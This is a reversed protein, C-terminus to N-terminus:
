GRERLFDDVTIRFLIMFGYVRAWFFRISWYIDQLFTINLGGVKQVVSAPVISLPHNIHNRVVVKAFYHGKLAFRGYCVIEGVVYDLSQKKFEWHSLWRNHSVVITPLFMLHSGAVLMRLAVDADDASRGYAGSGLREDFFGVRTLARKRFAMNNGYGINDWHTTPASIKMQSHRNKLTCPCIEGVHNKPQHPLTKGFFGDIDQHKAFSAYVQQLWDDSVICDDDTFAVVNSKAKKIGLNRSSSIGHRHNKFYRIKKSNFLRVLTETLHDDSQDIVLIEYEDFASRLLSTLCNALKLHRNKTSIIVSIKVM